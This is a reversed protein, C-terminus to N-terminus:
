DEDAMLRRFAGIADVITAQDEASMNELHEALWSTRQQKVSELVDTGQQTLFLGVQRRDIGRVRRILGLGELRALHGSVGPASIRERAALEQATIGSNLDIAVLLSVQGGTVGLAHTEGRLHRALRLVVPRLENAIALPDNVDRVM